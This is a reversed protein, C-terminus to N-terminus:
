LVTTKLFSVPYFTQGLVPYDPKGQSLIHTMPCVVVNEFPAFVVAQWANLLGWM